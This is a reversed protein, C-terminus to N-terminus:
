ADGAFRPLQGTIWFSASQLRVHGTFTVTASCMAQPGIGAHVTFEHLNSPQNYVPDTVITNFVVGPNPALAGANQLRVATVQCSASTTFTMGFRHWTIKNHESVGGLTPTSVVVPQAANNVAGFEAIPGNPSMRTVRGNYVMYLCQQGGVMSRITAGSPLSVETWCGSTEGGVSEMVTFVLLRGDRWAFLHKGLSAVHDDVVAKKPTRPGYRDLRDANVGDTYWIGGLRDVFVVIGAESWLCSFARYQVGDDPVAGIGGRVLEMILANPDSNGTYSILRSFYGRISHIGDSPGGSASITILNDGLVHMGRISVQSKGPYIVARPDFTDTDGASFYIGGRYPGTNNDNLYQYALNLQQAVFVETDVASASLRLPETWANPIAFYQGVEIKANYFFARPTTDPNTVVATAAQDPGTNAYSISSGSAATLTYVGNYLYDVGLVHVQDGPALGHASALTLTAVNTARAKNTVNVIVRTVPVTVGPAAIKAQVRTTTGDTWTGVTKVTHTGYLNEGYGLFDVKDDVFIPGTLFNTNVILDTGDAEYSYVSTSIPGKSNPNMYVVGGGNNYVMRGTKPVGAPWTLRYNQRDFLREGNESSLNINKIPEPTEATETKYIVDGLLLTNGKVTGVNARPIIGKGPLLAANEDLYTYPHHRVDPGGTFGTGWVTSVSGIALNGANDFYRTNIKEGATHEPARTVDPFTRYEVANATANVYALVAVQERAVGSTSTAHLLVATVVGLANKTSDYQGVPLPLQCIFKYRQNAPAGLATWTVGACTTHTADPAPDKAWHLAGSSDLGVLFDGNSSPLPFVGIFDNKAGIGQVPWQTEFELQSNPIIGKLQSWQRPTFDDPVLSEQIGGSFDKISIKQM